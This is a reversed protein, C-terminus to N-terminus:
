GGPDAEGRAILLLRQSANNRSVGCFKHIAMFSYQLDQNFRSLPVDTDIWRVQIEIGSGSVSPRDSIIEGIMMSKGKDRPVLALDGKAVQGFLAVVQGARSRVGKDSREPNHEQIARILEERTMEPRLGLVEYDLRILGTKLVDRVTKDDSGPRLKWARRKTMTLDAGDPDRDRM